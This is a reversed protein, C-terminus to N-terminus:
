GKGGGNMMWGSIPAAQELIALLALALNQAARNTNRGLRLLGHLLGPRRLIASLFKGTRIRQQEDTFEEISFPLPEAPGDSIARLALLPVGAQAAVQAIGATEM